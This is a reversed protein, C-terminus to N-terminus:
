VHQLIMQAANRMETGNLKFNAVTNELIIKELMSSNTFYFAKNSTVSINETDSYAIIPIAALMASSLFAISNASAGQIYIFCNETILKVDQLLSPKHLLTINAELSYKKYLDTAENTGKWDAIVVLKYKPLALFAELVMVTTEDPLGDCVKCAYPMKLFDYRQKDALTPRKIVETPEQIFTPYM